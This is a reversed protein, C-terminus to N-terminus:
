IYGKGDITGSTKKYGYQKLNGIQGPQSPCMEGKIGLKSLIHM